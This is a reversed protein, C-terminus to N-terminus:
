KSYSYNSRDEKSEIVNSMSINRTFCLVAYHGFLFCEGFFHLFPDVLYSQLVIVYTADVGYMYFRKESSIRITLCICYRKSESPFYLKETVAIRM